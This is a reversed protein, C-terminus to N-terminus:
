ACDAPRSTKRHSPQKGGRLSSLLAVLKDALQELNHRKMVSERLSTAITQREAGRLLLLWELKRALDGANGHEFLLRDAWNGMTERFGRTSSLSLKGCAMAELVTKDISHDSPSCNVHAFSRRYWQTIQQNAVAGVFQVSDGLNLEQVRNHVKEAYGSTQETASGVLACGVSYGRRHLLHIADVVTILDKIPSLRGVSIILPPNELATNSPSFLETDIGQGIVTLKDKQYPYSIYESSIMRDSLHHALKVTATLQRHAYWTVLPIGKSKLIPAALISFIPIMHSVCADIRDRRLIGFIIRYFCIVRRLESYGREKGVSHVQVNGPVEIRGARMTVVHIFEMRKALARVWGATFGLIPDDLDTALNFWLVRM